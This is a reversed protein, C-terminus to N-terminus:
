QIRGTFDISSATSGAWRTGDLRQGPDVGVLIAGHALDLDTLQELQSTTVCQALPSV